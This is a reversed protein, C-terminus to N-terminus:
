CEGTCEEMVYESILDLYKDKLKEKSETSFEEDTNKSDLLDDNSHGIIKGNKVFYVDPLNLSLSGEEDKELYDELLNLLKKYEDTNKSQISKPNYYYVESINKYKLADNLIDVSEACWECDSNGFFIVGSGGELIKLIEEITAYKFPNDESISYEASFKEANSLDNVKKVSCGSMLIVILLLFVLRKM